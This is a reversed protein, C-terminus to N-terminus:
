VEALLATVAERFAPDLRPGDGEPKGNLNKVTVLALGDQFADLRKGARMALPIHNRRCFLLVAAMVHEPSVRLPPGRGLAAEAGVGRETRVWAIRPLDAFSTIEGRQSLFQVLAARMEDAEFFVCRLEKPM